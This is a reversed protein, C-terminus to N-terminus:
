QQNREDWGTRTCVEVLKVLPKKLVIGLVWPEKVFISYAVGDGYIHSGLGNVETELALCSLQLM